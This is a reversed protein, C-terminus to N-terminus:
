TVLRIGSRRPGARSWSIVTPSTSAWYTSPCPACTAEGALSAPVMLASAGNQPPKFISVWEWQKELVHRYFFQLGNRDLKVTSWSHSDVLSAFYDKLQSKTLHEPSRNFFTSIRRVARSYAEITKPALGQLKLETLHQQYLQDFRAQEKRNM